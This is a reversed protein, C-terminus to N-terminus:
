ANRAADLAAKYNPESGVEGVYEVHKVTDDAGVVFVARAFLGKDAALVGWRDGFNRNKYDSLTTVNDIGAAGCWRKQAFPLDVSVAYVTVGPINAAEENFKRMETDCVPTDLSSVACLIRTKGSMDAGTVPSMDDAILTFDTPAADGVKVETGSLTVPNGKWNVTAM